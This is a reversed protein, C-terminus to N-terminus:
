LCIPRYTYLTPETKKSHPMPKSTKVNVNEAQPQLIDVILNQLNQLYIM